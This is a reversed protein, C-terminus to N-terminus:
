YGGSKEITYSVSEVGRAKLKMRARQIVQVAMWFTEELEEQGSEVGSISVKIHIKGEHASRIARRGKKMPKGDGKEERNCDDVTGSATITEEEGARDYQLNM